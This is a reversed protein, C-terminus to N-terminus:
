WIGMRCSSVESSLTVQMTHVKFPKAFDLFILMSKYPPFHKSWIKQVVHKEVIKSYMLIDDIYIFLFEDLNEHFILNM